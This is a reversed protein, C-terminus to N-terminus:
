APRLYAPELEGLDPCGLLALDCAIERRLIEIAAEVQAQGGVSAAYLMPRGVFVMRAGLALAKLADTGRRIGGDLCVPLEGAAQLIEPLVDLPAAAGDLQRGGHNSVILGDVGARVARRADEARLIGKLVLVGPWLRRVLAVHEWTFRDRGNRAAPLPASIIPRGAPVGTFNPMRPMGDTLLTRAMTGALWRPHLLGDLALALSPRVPVSFGLRKERDRNSPVAVDVTLVLVQVGASRLRDLLGVIVAEEGAVYGQYWSGPSRELVQELPVSSAASLVHPVRQRHAAEALALDARHAYLACGGMPAIGFPASYTAGFLSVEQNVTSVDVLARPVFAWKGYARANAQTSAGRESGNDAFAYLCRPLRRRALAEFDDLTLIMGRRGAM